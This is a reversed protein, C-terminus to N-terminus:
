RVLLNLSRWTRTWHHASQEGRRARDLAVQLRCWAVRALLTEAEGGGSRYGFVADRVAAAPIAAFDWACDLWGAGAWDVIGTLRDGDAVINAAHMDGHCLVPRFGDPIRAHLRDRAEMVRAAVDPELLDRMLLEEAVARPDDDAPQEYRRLGAPVQEASAAHLLALQEGAQQWVSANADGAVLSCGALLPSVIIPVRPHLDHAVLLIEPAAVGLERVAAAVEAHRLCAEVAEPDDLPVKVAFGGWAVVTSTAGEWRDRVAWVDRLGLEQALGSAVADWHEM